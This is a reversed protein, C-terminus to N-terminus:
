GPPAFDRLKLNTYPAHRNCIELMMNMFLDTAAEIDDTSEICSWDTALADNYFNTANFHRYSTCRVYHIHRNEKKKKRSAFVLAHDSLGPDFVGANHYLDPRNTVLHDICSKSTNTIRTPSLIMSTLKQRALMLKYRKTNSDRTNLLNLNFNGTLLLDCDGLSEIDLIKQEIIQEFNEYSGDPPRYIAGIYTLKTLKLSLKLWVIEVDRNCLHWEPLEEFSYKDDIYVLLGSGRRKHSGADRDHRIFRYNPITVEDDSISDNLWSETLLLCNIHSRALM